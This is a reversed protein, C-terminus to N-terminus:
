TARSPRASRRRARGSGARRRTVAAARAAWPLGSGGDTGLREAAAELARRAAEPAGAKGIGLRRRAHAWSELVKAHAGTETHVEDGLVLLRRELERAAATTAKARPLSDMRVLGARNVRALLGRAPASLGRTREVGRAGGVAVLAPWLRRHVFTVKGAVLKVPLADGAHELEQMADYIEHSCPHAWWSGAVPAGVVLASVSALKADHGLLLGRRALEAHVRRFDGRTAAPSESM